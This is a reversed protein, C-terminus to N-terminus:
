HQEVPQKIEEAIGLHRDSLDLIETLEAAAGGAMRLAAMSRADFHRRARQALAEGIRDAHRKGLPNEVRVEAVIEDIVVGVDEGAVATQHLTQAM